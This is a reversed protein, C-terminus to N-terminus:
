NVYSIGNTDKLHEHLIRRVEVIAEPKDQVSHWSKIVKESQAGDLHSSSYPVVGDSSLQLSLEPTDNGM